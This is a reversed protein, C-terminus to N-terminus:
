RVCTEIFSKGFPTVKAYSCLMDVGIIELSFEGEEFMKLREQYLSTEKYKAYKSPNNVRALDKEPLEILALRALNRISVSQLEIDQENPNELFVDPQFIHYKGHQYNYIYDVLPLSSVGKFLRLNQADLPSLQEIISIFAPHNNKAYRADASAVILNEFLKILEEEEIYYLSRDYARDAICRKPEIRFEEPIAKAGNQLSEHFKKMNEADELQMMESELNFKRTKRYLWNDFTRKVTPVETINKIVETLNKATDSM